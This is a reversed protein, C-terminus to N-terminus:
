KKKTREKTMAINEEHTPQSIGPMSWQPDKQNVEAEENYFSKLTNHNVTFMELFAVMGKEEQLYGIFDRKAQLDKPMKVSYTNRISFSGIGDVQWKTKKSAKLASLVDKRLVEFEKHAENSAAKKEEYVKRALYMKECISDMKSIDIPEADKEAEEDWNQVDM